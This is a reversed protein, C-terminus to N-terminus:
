CSLSNADHIRLVSGEQRANQRIQFTQLTFLLVRSVQRQLQDDPGMAHLGNSALRKIILSNHHLTSETSLKATFHINPKAKNLTDLFEYSKM